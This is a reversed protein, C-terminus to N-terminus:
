HKQASIYVNKVHSVDTLTVAAPPAFLVAPPVVTVVLAVVFAPSAVVVFPEFAEDIDNNNTAMTADIM